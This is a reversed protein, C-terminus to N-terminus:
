LNYPEKNRSKKCGRRFIRRLTIILKKFVIRGLLRRGATGEGWDSSPDTQNLVGM